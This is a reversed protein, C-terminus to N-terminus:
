KIDKYTDLYSSYNPDNNLKVEFNNGSEKLLNLLEPYDKLKEKLSFYRDVDDKSVSSYTQPDFKFQDQFIKKLLEEKRAEFNFQKSDEDFYKVLNQNAKITSKEKLLKLKEELPKNKLTDSHFSSTTLTLNQILSNETYGDDSVLHEITMQNASIGTDLQDINYIEKLVYRVIQRNKSLTDDENSFRFTKNEIFANNIDGSPLIDEVEYFFQAMYMTFEVSTESHYLDYSLKSILKEMKNSSLRYTNFIFFYNRVLIFTKDLIEESILGRKYQLYIASLLPRVQQNRKINFYEIVNNESTRDSMEVYVHSFELLGSLFDSLKDVPVEEKILRYVLSANEAQKQIYCKAFNSILLDPNSLKNSNQEIVKWDAKARDIFEDDRPQVYKMLHNKLLEIQKLKQGRANLVEFINYIEEEQGSIIEVINASLLKDLFESVDNYDRNKLDSIFYNYLKYYNNQKQITRRKDSSSASDIIEKIDHDYDENKIVLIRESLNNLTSIFTEFIYKARKTSVDTNIDRLRKYIAVLLIYITTLRQQGDIIEYKEVGKDPLHKNLVITGLFHSWPIEDGNDMTFRIDVLLEKWNVEKWVYNRQYRPISYEAARQFIDSIKRTETNFTM